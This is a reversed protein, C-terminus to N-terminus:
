KFHLLCYLAAATFTFSQLDGAQSIWNSIIVYEMISCSLYATYLVSFYVHDLLQQIKQGNTRM